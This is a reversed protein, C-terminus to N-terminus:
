KKITTSITTICKEILENLDDLECVYDDLVISANFQAKSLNYGSNESPQKYSYSLQGIVNKLSYIAAAEKTLENILFNSVESFEPECLYPFVYQNTYLLAKVHIEVLIPIENSLRTRFVNYGVTYNNKVMRLTKNVDNKSAGKSHKQIFDEMVKDQKNNAIHFNDIIQRINKLSESSYNLLDSCYSILEDGDAFQYDDDIVSKSQYINIINELDVVSEATLISDKKLTIKHNDGKTKPMNRKFISNWYLVNKEDDYLVIIVPISYSSWYEYHVRSMYYDYDGDKNTTVNGLGSKIQVAILEGTPIGDKRREIISDIGIDVISQERPIWKLERLVFGEFANVGIRDKTNVRNEM